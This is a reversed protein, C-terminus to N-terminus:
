RRTWEVGCNFWWRCVCEPDLEGLRITVSILPRRKRAFSVVISIDVKKSRDVDILLGCHIPPLLNPLM